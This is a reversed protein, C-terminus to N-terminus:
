GGTRDHAHTQISGFDQADHRHDESKNGVGLETEDSRRRTGQTADLNCRVVHVQEKALAGRDIGPRCRKDVHGLHGVLRRPETVGALVERSEIHTADGDLQAGNLDADIGIGSLTDARPRPDM